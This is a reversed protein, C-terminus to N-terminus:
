QQSSERPPLQWALSETGAGGGQVSTWQGTLHSDDIALYSVVGIDQIKEGNMEYYGVSLTRSSLIGVGQQKQQGEIKWVLDYINSTGTRRTIEVTGTYNPSKDQANQGNLFFVGERLSEVEAPVSSVNDVSEPSLTNEPMQVPRVTIANETTNKADEKRSFPLMGSSWAIAAALVAIVLLILPFMAAMDFSSQSGPPQQPQVEPPM